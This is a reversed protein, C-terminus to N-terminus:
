LISCSGLVVGRGAVTAPRKPRLPTSAEQCTQDMEQLDVEELDDIQVPKDPQASIVIENEKPREPVKKSSFLASLVSNMVSQLDVTM